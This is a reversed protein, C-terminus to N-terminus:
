PGLGCIEDVDRHFGSILFNYTGMFHVHLNIDHIINVNRKGLQHFDNTYYCDRDLTHAM